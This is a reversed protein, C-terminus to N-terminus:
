RDPIVAIRGLSVLGDKLPTGETATAALGSKTRADRFGIFVETEGIPWDNPILIFRELGFYDGPKLKKFDFDENKMLVQIEAGGNKDVLRAVLEIPRKVFDDMRLAVDIWLSTGQPKERPYMEYGVISLLGGFGAEVTNRLSPKVPLRVEGAHERERRTYQADIAFSWRVMKEKADEASAQRPPDSKLLNTKELPDVANDFQELKNQSLWFITKLGGRRYALAYRKSWASYYLERDDSVPRLFSEGVFRGESVELGLVDCVTPVVDLISRYGGVRTGAPLHGPSYLLAFTRLGEEYLTNNHGRLQHEDFAEGHDGMVIFLTNGLLDREDLGRFVSDIFEDTYLAANLYKNLTDDDVGFDKAPVSAPLNYDHHTCLTLLTLFFPEGRVSDVWELCPRLMMKEEKGFYNTVGFGEDPMDFVGKFVDFGLAAVLEPRNEYNNATQFFATRYGQKKLLHALAREPLVGPRAEKVEQELYPPIGGLLAVLAKTTHPVVTYVRDVVTSEPALRALFPTTGLGPTFVDSNKWNLSEFIILVVNLDPAAPNKVLELPGDFRFADPIEVAELGEGSTDGLGAFLSRVANATVAPNVKDLDPVFSVAEMLIVAALFSVAVKRQRLCNKERLRRRIGKWYPLSLLGAILAFQLILLVASSGGMENLIIRNTEKFNQAWSEIFIWTLGTGFNLFLAWHGALAAFSFVTLLSYVAAALGNWPRRLASVLLSFVLVASVTIFFDTKVARLPDLISVFSGAYKLMMARIVISEVLFLLAVPVTQFPGGLGFLCVGRNKDSLRFRTERLM